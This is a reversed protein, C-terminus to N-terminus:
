LFSHETFSQIRQLKTSRPPTSSTSSNTTKEKLKKDYYQNILNFQDEEAIRFAHSKKRQVASRVSEISTSLNKSLKGSASNFYDSNVYDNSIGSSRRSNDADLHATDVHDTISSYEAFSPNIISNLICLHNSINSTKRSYMSIMSGLRNERLFHDNEDGDVSGFMLNPVISSKRAKKRPRNKLLYNEYMERDKRQEQESNQDFIGLDKKSSSKNITMKLTDENANIEINKNKKIFLQQFNLKKIM